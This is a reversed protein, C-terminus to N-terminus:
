PAVIQASREAIKAMTAAPCRRMVSIATKVSASVSAM